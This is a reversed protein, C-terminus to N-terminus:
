GTPGQTRDIALELGVKIPLGEIEVALRLQLVVTSAIVVTHLIIGYFPNM